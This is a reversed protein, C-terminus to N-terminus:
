LYGSKAACVTTCLRRKTELIIPGLPRVKCKVALVVLDCAAEFWEM